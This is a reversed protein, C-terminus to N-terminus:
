SKVIVYKGAFRLLENEDREEIINLDLIQSVEDPLSFYVKLLLDRLHTLDLNRVILAIDLDSSGMTDGKVVSGYVIVEKVDAFKRAENLVLSAIKSWNEELYKMRETGFVM